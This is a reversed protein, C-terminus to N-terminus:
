ATAKISEKVGREAGTKGITAILSPQHRKALERELVLMVSAKKALYNSFIGVLDYDGLQKNLLNALDPLASLTENFHNKETGKTHVDIWLLCKKRERDTLSRTNKLWNEFLPLIFEVEGHTYVEHVLTTLFGIFLDAEKVMQRDKWQKFNAGEDLLNQRSLWEDNGCITTAMQYYLDYHLKGGTAGLDEDTVRNLHSLVNLYKANTEPTCAEPATNRWRMTLRNCYGSLGVASNNTMSWNHFFCNLGSQSHPSNTLVNFASEITELQSTSDDFATQLAARVPLYEVEQVVESILTILNTM